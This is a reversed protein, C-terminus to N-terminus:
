FNIEGSDPHELGIISRLVESKGTGSGGFLGLNEGEFLEFTVGKHVKKEGYSKFLEKIELAIKKTVERPKELSM